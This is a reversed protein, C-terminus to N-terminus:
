IYGHKYKASCLLFSKFFKTFIFLIPYAARQCLRVTPRYAVSAQMQFSGSPEGAHGLWCASIAHPPCAPVSWDCFFPVHIMDITKAHSCSLWRFPRKRSSPLALLVVQSVLYGTIATIATFLHLSVCAEFSGCEKRPERLVHSLPYGIIRHWKAVLSSLIERCLGRPLRHWEWYRCTRIIWDLCGRQFM